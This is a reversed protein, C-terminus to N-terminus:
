FFYPIIRYTKKRYEAYDKFRGSLMKEEFTLKIVLDISLVTWAIININTLNTLVWCYTIGLVSTYMPHRILKYPGTKILKADDLVDPAVNFHFKMVAASWIGLLLFLFIATMLGTDEPIIKSNFAIIGICLVQILVLLASKLSGPKFNVINM